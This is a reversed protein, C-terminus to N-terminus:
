AIAERAKLVHDLISQMRTEDAFPSLVYSKIAVLARLMSFVVYGDHVPNSVPQPFAQRLEDLLQRYQAM